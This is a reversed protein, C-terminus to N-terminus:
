FVKDVVRRKIVDCFGDFGNILKDIALILGMGSIFVYM